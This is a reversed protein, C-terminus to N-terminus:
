GFPHAHLIMVVAGNIEAYTDAHGVGENSNSAWYNCTGTQGYVTSSGVLDPSPGFNDEYAACYRLTTSGGAEARAHWNFDSVSSGHVMGHCVAECHYHPKSSHSARALSVAMLAVSAVLVVSVALAIM